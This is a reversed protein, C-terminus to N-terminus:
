LEQTLSLLRSSLAASSNQEHEHQAYRQQRLLGNLHHVLKNKAVVQQQLRSVKKGFTARLQEEEKKFETRAKELRGEALVRHSQSHRESENCLRRLENVEKRLATERRERQTDGQESAREQEDLERKLREVEFGLVSEKERHSALQEAHIRSMEAVEREHLQAEARVREESAGLEERLVAVVRGEREGASEAASAPQELRARLEGLLGELESKAAGLAEFEANNREILAEYYQEIAVSKKREEALAAELGDGREVLWGVQREAASASKALERKLSAASGVRPAKARQEGM